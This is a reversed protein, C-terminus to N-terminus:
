QLNHTRGDYINRVMEDSDDNSIIFAPDLSCNPDAVTSEPRIGGSSMTLFSTKTWIEERQFMIKKREPVRM